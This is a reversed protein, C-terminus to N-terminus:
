RRGSRLRSKPLSTNLEIRRAPLRTPQQHKQRLREGAKADRRHGGLMGRRQKGHEAARDTNFTIWFRDLMHLERLNPSTVWPQRERAGTELGFLASQQPSLPRSRRCGKVLAEAVREIRPTDFIRSVRRLRALDTAGLAGQAGLICDLLHDPLTLLSAPATNTGTTTDMTPRVSVVGVRAATCELEDSRRQMTPGQQQEASTARVVEQAPRMPPRRKAERLLGAVAATLTDGPSADDQVWGGGPPGGAVIAGPHRPEEWSSMGTMQNFWYPRQKRASWQEEWWGMEEGMDHRVVTGTLTHPLM